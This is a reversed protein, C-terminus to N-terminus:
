KRGYSQPWRGGSFHNQMVNQMARNYRQSSDICGERIWPKSWYLSNVRAGYDSVKEAALSNYLTAIKAITPNKIRERIRSILIVGFEINYYPVKLNDPTVGLDRWYKYHINMPLITKRLPNVADYWGHTTEMFLIAKVLEPDVNHKRSLLAIDGCWRGVGSQSELEYIPKVGVAKPNLDIPFLAPTNNIISKKRDKAKRLIPVTKGNSGIPDTM